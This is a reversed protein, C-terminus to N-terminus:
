CIGAFFNGYALVGVAVHIRLLSSAPKWVLESKCFIQDVLLSRWKLKWWFSLFNWWMKFSDGDRFFSNGYAFRAVKAFIQSKIMRLLIISIERIQFSTRSQVFFNRSVGVAVKEAFSISKWVLNKADGCFTVMPSFALWFIKWFPNWWFSPFNEGCKQVFGRLFTVMPSFLRLLTDKAFEIGAKLRAWKQLSKLNSWGISLDESLKWWFSLFNWWM